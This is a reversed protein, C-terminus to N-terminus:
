KATDEHSHGDIAQHIDDAFTHILDLVGLAKAKGATGDELAAIHDRLKTFEAEFAIFPAEDLDEVEYLTGLAYCIM